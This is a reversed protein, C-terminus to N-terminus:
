WFVEFGVFDAGYAVNGEDGYVNGVVVENVGKQWGAVLVGFTGSDEWGDGVSFLESSKGSLPTEIRTVAGNM